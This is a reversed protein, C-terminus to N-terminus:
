RGYLELTSPRRGLVKPATEKVTKKAKKKM